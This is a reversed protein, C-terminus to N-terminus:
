GRIVALCSSLAMALGQDNIEFTGQVQTSPGAEGYFDCPGDPQVNILVHCTKTRWHLDISGDACPGIKPVPLAARLCEEHGRALRQLLDVAMTWTRPSIPVSGAEDWDAPLDLISRSRQIASELPDENQVLRLAAGGFSAVIWGKASPRETRQTWVKRLETPRACDYGKAYKEERM